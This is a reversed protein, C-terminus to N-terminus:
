RHRGIDSITWVRSADDVEWYIRLCQDPSAGEDVKLHPTPNAGYGFGCRAFYESPSEGLRGDHYRVGAEMVEKVARLLEEPARYQDFKRGADLAGDTIAVKGAFYPHRLLETVADMADGVTLNDGGSGDATSSREPAAYARTVEGFASKVADLEAGKQELEAELEAIRQQHEKLSVIYGANEQDALEILSALQGPNGHNAADLARSRAEERLQRQVPHEPTRSAGLSGLWTRLRPTLHDGTRSGLWLRHRFPDDSLTFGPFYLRVAGDWASLSPTIRSSLEWSARDMSLVWVHALGALERALARTNLTVAGTDKRPTVLVVPLRREPAELLDVLEGVSSAGILNPEPALRVGADLIPIERLVTRVISPSSFEYTKPELAATGATDIGIRVTLDLPGDPAALDIESVWRLSNDEPSVQTLISVRGGDTAVETILDGPEQYRGAFEGGDLHKVLWDDVLPAAVANTSEGSRLQVAYLERM